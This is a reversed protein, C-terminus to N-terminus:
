SKIETYALKMYTLIKEFISLLLCYNLTTHHYCFILGHETSSIIMHTFDFITTARHFFIAM